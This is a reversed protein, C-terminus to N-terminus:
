YVVWIEQIYLLFERPKRVQPRLPEARVASRIDREAMCLKTSYVVEKQLIPFFMNHTYSVFHELYVVCIKRIICERARLPVARVVGRVDREAM